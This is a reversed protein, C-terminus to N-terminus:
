RPVTRKWPNHEGTGFRTWTQGTMTDLLYANNVDMRTMRYRGIEGAGVRPSQSEATRSFLACLLCAMVAIVGIFMKERSNLM